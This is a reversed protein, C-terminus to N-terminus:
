TLANQSFSFFSNLLLFGIDYYFQIWGQSNELQAQASQQSVEFALRAPLPRAEERDGTVEISARHGRGTWRGEEGM